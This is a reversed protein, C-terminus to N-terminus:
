LKTENLFSDVVEQAVKEAGEAGMTVRFLSKITRLEADGEVITAIRSHFAGRLHDLVKAFGETHLLERMQGETIIAKELSQAIERSGDDALNNGNTFKRLTEIVGM